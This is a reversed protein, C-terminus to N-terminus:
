WLWGGEERVTKRYKNVILKVYSVKEAMERCKKVKRM